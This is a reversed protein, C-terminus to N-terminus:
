MAQFIIAFSSSSVAEKQLGPFSKLTVRQGVVEVLRWQQLGVGWLGNASTLGGRNMEFANYSFLDFLNSSCFKVNTSLCWNFPDM